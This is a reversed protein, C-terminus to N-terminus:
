SHFAFDVLLRNWKFQGVRLSRNVPQFLVGSVPQEQDKMSMEASEGAALMQRLQPLFFVLNLSQPDLDGDDRELGTQQCAQVDTFRIQRPRQQHVLRSLNIGSVTHFM